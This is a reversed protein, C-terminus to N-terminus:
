GLIIKTRTEPTLAGESKSGSKPTSLKQERLEELRKLKAQAQAEQTAKEAQARVNYGKTTVEKVGGRKEGTAREWSSATELDKIEKEARFSKKM